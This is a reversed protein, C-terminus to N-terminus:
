LRHGKHIFYGIFFDRYSIFLFHEYDYGFSIIFKNDVM